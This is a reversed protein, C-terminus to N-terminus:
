PTEELGVTQAAIARALRSTVDALAFRAEHLDSRDVDTHFGPMLRDLLTLMAELHALAQSPTM